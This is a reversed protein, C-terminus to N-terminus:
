EGGGSDYNSEPPPSYTKQSPRGPEDKPPYEYNTVTLQMPNLCRPCQVIGVSNGRITM